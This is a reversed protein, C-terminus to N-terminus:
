TPPLGAHLIAHLDKASCLPTFIPILAQSSECARGYITLGLQELDAFTTEIDALIKKLKEKIEQM